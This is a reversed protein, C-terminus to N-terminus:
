KIGINISTKPSPDKPSLSDQQTIMLRGLLSGERKWALVCRIWRWICLLNTEPKHIRGFPEWGEAELDCSLYNERSPFDVKRGTNTTRLQKTIPDKSIPYGLGAWCQSQPSSPNQEGLQEAKVDLTSSNYAHESHGSWHSEAWLFMDKQDLKLESQHLKCKKDITRRM